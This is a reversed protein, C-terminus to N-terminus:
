LYEKLILRVCVGALLQFFVAEAPCWADPCPLAKQIPVGIIGSVTNRTNLGKGALLGRLQLAAADPFLLRLHRLGLGLRLFIDVPYVGGGAAVARFVQVQQLGIDRLLIARYFDPRNKIGPRFFFALLQQILEIGPFQCLLGDLLQVGLFLLLRLFRGGFLLCCWLRLRFRRLFINRGVLRLGLWGILGQGIQLFLRHFDSVAVFVQGQLALNIYDRLRKAALGAFDASGGTGAFPAAGAIHGDVKVVTRGQEDAVVQRWLGFGYLYLRFTDVTRQYPIVRFDHLGGLFRGQGHQQLPLGLVVLNGGLLSQLGVRQQIHFKVVSGVLLGAAIHAPVIHRQGHVPFDAGM